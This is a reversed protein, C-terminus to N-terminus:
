TTLLKVADRFTYGDRQMLVDIPNFSKACPFCTARNKVRHWVLSPRSDKHCFVTSHGRQDVRVIRDIPYGRANEIMEETIENPRVPYGKTLMVLYRLERVELYLRDFVDQCFLASLEGTDNALWEYDESLEQIHSKLYLIRHHRCEDLTLGTDKAIKSLNMM